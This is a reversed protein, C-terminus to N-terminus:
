ARLARGFLRKLMELAVLLVVGVALALAFDDLHLPGFRFLDRAPPWVLVAALLMVM